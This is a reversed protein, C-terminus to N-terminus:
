YIGTSCELGTKYLLRTSWFPTSRCTKKVVIEDLLRCNEYNFKANNIGAKAVPEYVISKGTQFSDSSLFRALKEWNHQLEKIELDIFPIQEDQRFATFQRGNCLAFYKTRIEPHISYSYVQEINDGFRINKNPSKADLVWAYNDDVKLLYDPILTIPRKKSGTTLFPHQLNKSRVIQYGNYGLHKLIPLIIEERVADEKFDPSQLQSFDFTSFLNTSNEMRNHKSM